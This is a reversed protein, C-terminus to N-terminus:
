ATQAVTQAVTGTNGRALITAHYASRILAIKEPAAIANIDQPPTIRERLGLRDSLKTLWGEPSKNVVSMITWAEMWSIPGDRLVEVPFEPRRNYLRGLVMNETVDDGSQERIFKMLTSAREGQLFRDIVAHEIEPHDAWVFRKGSSKVNFPGPISGALITDDIDPFVTVPEGKDGTKAAWIANGVNGISMDLQVAIEKPGMGLYRLRIAEKRRLGRDEKSLTHKAPPAKAAPAKAPLRGVDVGQKSAKDLVTRVFRFSVNESKEISRITEGRLKRELIRGEVTESVFPRDPVPAPPAPVPAPAANATMAAMSSMTMLHAVLSARFPGQDMSSFAQMIDTADPSTIFESLHKPDIV